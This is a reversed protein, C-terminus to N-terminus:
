GHHYKAKHVKSCDALVFFLLFPCSYKAKTPFSIM